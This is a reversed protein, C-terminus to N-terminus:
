AGKVMRGPRIEEPDPAAGGGQAAFLPYERAVDEPGKALEALVRGGEVLRVFEEDTLQYAKLLRDWNKPRPLHGREVASVWAQRCGARRAVDEQSLRLVWVRYELLSACEV